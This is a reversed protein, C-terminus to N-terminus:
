KTLIKEFAKNKISDVIHLLANALESYNDKIEKDTYTDLEKFPHNRTTAVLSLVGYCHYSMNSLFDITADDTEEEQETKEPSFLLPISIVAKANLDKIVKEVPYSYLDVEEESDYRYKSWYTVESSKFARGAAGRGIFLDNIPPFKNPHRVVKLLKQEKNFGLLFFLISNDEFITKFDKSVQEYFSKTLLSEPLLIEQRIYKLIEKEKPNLFNFRFEEPVNWRLTYIIGPQPYKILVSIESREERVRLAKKEYLFRTEETDILYKGKLLDLSDVNDIPRKKYAMVYFSSPNPFFPNVEFHEYINEPFTVLLELSSVSHETEISCIEELEFEVNKWDYQEAHEKDTIAYGNTLLYAVKCCNDFSGMPNHAEIKVEFDDAETPATPVGGKYLPNLWNKVFVSNYLPCSGYEYQGGTIRGIDSRIVQTIAKQKHTLNEKWEINDFSLSVQADGNSLIHVIKTKSGINRVLGKNERNDNRKKRVSSYSIIEIPNAEDLIYKNRNEKSVCNKLSVTRNQDIEIIKFEKEKENYKGTNACSIISISKNENNIHRYESIVSSHKHGHLLININNSLLADLVSYANRLLLFSELKEKKPLSGTPLPHHHMLAIKLSKSYINEDNDQDIELFRNTYSSIKRGPSKIKGQAHFLLWKTYYTSDLPFIAINTKKYIECIVDEINRNDYLIKSILTKFNKRKNWLYINGFYAVDHNGPVVVIYSDEGRDNKTKKLEILADSFKKICKRSPHDLSDGTIAIIDPKVELKLSTLVRHFLDNWTRKGDCHLDSLHAITINKRMTILGIEPSLV